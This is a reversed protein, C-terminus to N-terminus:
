SQVEVEEISAGDLYQRHFVAGVKGQWGMEEHYHSVLKGNLCRCRIMVSGRQNARDIDQQSTYIVRGYFRETIKLLKAPKPEQYSTVARKTVPLGAVESALSHYNVAHLSGLLGAKAQEDWQAPYAVGQWDAFEVIENLDGRKENPYATRMLAEDDHGCDRCFRVFLALACATISGDCAQGLQYPRPSFCGHELLDAKATNLSVGNEYRWVLYKIGGLCKARGEFVVENQGYPCRWLYLDFGASRVALPQPLEGVTFTHDYNLENM